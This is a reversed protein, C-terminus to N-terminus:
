PTPSKSKIFDEIAKKSNTRGLTTAMELATQPSREGNKISTDAGKDLLLQVKDSYDGNIISNHLATYQKADQLNPNAGNDLLFQMAKLTGKEAQYTLATCDTCDTGGKTCRINVDSIRGDLLMQRMLDIDANNGKNMVFKEINDEIDPVVPNPSSSGGGAASSASTIPSGGVGVIIPAAIPLTSSTTIPAGGGGGGSAATTITPVVAFLESLKNKFNNATSCDLGTKSEAVTSIFPNAPDYQITFLYQKAFDITTLDDPFPIASACDNVDINVSKISLMGTADKSFEVIIPFENTKLTSTTTRPPKRFNLPKFNQGPTISVITSTQGGAASSSASKCEDLKLTVKGNKNDYEITGCNNYDTITLDDSNNAVNAVVYTDIVNKSNISLVYYYKKNKTDYADCLIENDSLTIKADTFIKMTKISADIKNDFKQSANKPKRININITNTADSLIRRTIFETEVGNFTVDIVRTVDEAGTFEKQLSEITTKVDPIKEDFVFINDYGITRYHISSPNNIIITELTPYLPSSKTFKYDGTVGIQKVASLLLVNYGFFQSNLDVFLVPTIHENYPENSNHNPDNASNMLIDVLRTKLNLNKFNNGFADASTIGNYEDRIKLLENIDINDSTRMTTSVMAAGDTNVIVMPIYKNRFEHAVFKKASANLARFLPSIAQLFGHFGCSNQHGSSNMQILNLNTAINYQTKDFQKSNLFTPNEQHLLNSVFNNINDYDNAYYDTLQLKNFNELTMGKTKSLYSDTGIKLSDAIGPSKHCIQFSDSKWDNEIFTSTDHIKLASNKQTDCLECKTKNSANISTCASCSWEDKGVAVTLNTNKFIKLIDEDTPPNILIHKIWDQLHTRRNKYTNNMNSEDLVPKTAFNTSDWNVTYWNNIDNAYKV